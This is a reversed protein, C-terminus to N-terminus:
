RRSSTLIFYPHVGRVFPAPYILRQNVQQKHIDRMRLIQGSREDDEAQNICIADVWIPISRFHHSQWAKLAAALNQGVKFTNDNITTYSLLRAPTPLSCLTMKGLTHSHTTIHLTASRHNLSPATHKDQITRNLPYFPSFDSKMRKSILHSTDSFRGRRQSTPSVERSLSIDRM